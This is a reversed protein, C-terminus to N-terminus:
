VFAAYQLKNIGTTKASFRVKVASKFLVFTYSRRLVALPLKLIVLGRTSDPLASDLQRLPGAAILYNTYSFYWFTRPNDSSM